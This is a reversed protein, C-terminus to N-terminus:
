RNEEPCLPFWCAYRHNAAGADAILLPEKERCQEQARGCRPAFPCGYLRAPLDPPQGGIALLPTHPPDDLRPIADLLARTYPMRMRRFLETTPAQEVIRGAYMVATEQARGAVVGLDHSVLIMAMQREGQLRQLLNLIEAQVTVDLATTPEDVILLKPDCALAIAIAVRQCMGGSLQHPYCNLREEPRPIGVATLLELSRRRAEGRSIGLHRLMTEAIQRGIKLVPNLATMPNQLVVGIGNGRLAALEKPPLRSLSSGAFVIEGDIAAGAPLIGLIARCLTSKGCGSEGVIALTQGRELCFSVQHV